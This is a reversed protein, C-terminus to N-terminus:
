VSINVKTALCQHRQYDTLVLRHYVWASECIKGKKKFTNAKELCLAQINQELTKIDPLSINVTDMAKILPPKEPYEPSLVVELYLSCRSKELIKNDTLFVSIIPDCKADLPKKM